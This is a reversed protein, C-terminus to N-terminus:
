SQARAARKAARKAAKKAARLERGVARDLLQGSGSGWGRVIRAPRGEHDIVAYFPYSRIGFVQSSQNSPDWVQTWTIDEEELYRRLAEEDHDVSIGILVFPQDELRKTMRRLHPVANRCPKCWTAWFDLLVVKGRYDALVVEEGDLTTFTLSEPLPEATAKKADAAPPATLLLM